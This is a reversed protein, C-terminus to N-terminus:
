GHRAVRHRPNQAGSVSDGEFGPCQCYGSEIDLREVDRRARKFDSATEGRVVSEKLVEEVDAQHTWAPVNSVHNAVNEVGCFARAGKVHNDFTASSLVVELGVATTNEVSKGGPQRRLADEVGM